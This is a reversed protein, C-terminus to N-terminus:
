INRQIHRHLAGGVRPDLDEGGEPDRRAGGSGITDQRKNCRTAAHQVTVMIWIRVVEDSKAHALRRTSFIAFFFFDLLMVPVHIYLCSQMRITQHRSPVLIWTQCRCWQTQIACGLRIWIEKLDHIRHNKNREHKKWILFCIWTKKLNLFRWNM